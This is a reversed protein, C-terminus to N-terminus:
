DHMALCVSISSLAVFLSLSSAKHVSWTEPILREVPGDTGVGHGPSAM